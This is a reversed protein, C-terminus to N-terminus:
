EKKAVNMRVLINRNQKFYSLLVAGIAATAAAISGVM